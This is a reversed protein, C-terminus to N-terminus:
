AWKVVESDAFKLDVNRQDVALALRYVGSRYRAFTWGTADDDVGSLDATTGACEVVFKGLGLSVGVGRAKIYAEKLTWFGFFAERADSSACFAEYERQSFSRRAVRDLNTRRDVQEVDVGLKLDSDSMACVILGDTHSVNFSVPQNPVFPKGHENYALEIEDPRAKLRGSLEERLLARANLFLARAGEHRYRRARELEDASLVEDFTDVDAEFPGTQAYIYIERHM